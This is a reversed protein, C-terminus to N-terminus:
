VSQSVLHPLPQARYCVAKISKPQKILNSGLLAANNVNGCALLAVELPVAASLQGSEELAKRRCPAVPLDPWSV